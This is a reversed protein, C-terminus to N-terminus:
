ARGSFMDTHSKQDALILIKPNTTNGRYFGSPGFSIDQIMEEAYSSNEISEWLEAFEPVLFSPGKDYQSRTIINKPPEFPLDDSTFGNPTENYRLTNRPNTYYLYIIREDPRDSSPQENPPITQCRGSRRAGNNYCGNESFIQIKDSGRRNSSTGKKGLVWPTGFSFDRHPISAYGYKFDKNFNRTIGEDKPLWNPNRKIHDAVIKAKKKFDSILGGTATSGANRASAAGPHRVGIGLIGKLEGKGECFSSTLKSYSCSGPAKTNFWTVLSEKGATGVGVVM